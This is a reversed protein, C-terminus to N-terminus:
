RASEPHGWDRYIVRHFGHASLSRFTRQRPQLMSGHPLSYTFSHTFSHILSHFSRVIVTIATADERPPPAIAPIITVEEHIVPAIRPPSNGRLSRVRVCM